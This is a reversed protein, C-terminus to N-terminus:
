CHGAREGRLNWEPTRYKQDLLEKIESQEREHLTGPELQIGLAEEFGRALAQWSEEFSVERGAAMALPIMEEWGAGDPFVRERIRVDPAVPLSTQQLIVGDRRAQASGAIKRGDFVIDCRATSKFCAAIRADPRKRVGESLSAEVGLNRRGAVIGGAIWRYSGMVDAPGPIAEAAVVVSFTVENDHLIARGGTPRRVLDIGLRQCEQVDIGGLNRQFYGLSLAPPSWRYFRITAPVLGLSHVTAIAEDTAMNVYGDAADHILLRWVQQYQQSM